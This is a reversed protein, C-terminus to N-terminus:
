TMEEVISYIDEIVERLKWGMKVEYETTKSTKNGLPNVIVLGAKGMEDYWTLASYIKSHGTSDIIEDITDLIFREPSDYGLCDFYEYLPKDICKKACEHKWEYNNKMYELFQEIPQAM